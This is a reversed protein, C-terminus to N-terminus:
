DLEALRENDIRGDIYELKYQLVAKKQLRWAAYKHVCDALDLLLPENKADTFIQLGFNSGEPNTVFDAFSKCIGQIYRFYDAGNYYNINFLFEANALYQNFLIRGAETRVERNVLLLPLHGKLFKIRTGTSPLPRALRALRPTRPTHASCLFWEAKHIDAFYHSYIIHRLEVPLRMLPFSDCNPTTANCSDPTPTDAM